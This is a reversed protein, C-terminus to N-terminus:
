CGIPKKGEPLEEASVDEYVGMMELDGLEKETVKKWEEADTQREAEWYTAPLISMDYGEAQPNRRVNSRISLLTAEGLSDVDQQLYDDADLSAAMALTEEGEFEGSKCLEIFLNDDEDSGGGTEDSEGVNSGLGGASGTGVGGRRAATERVKVLHDREAEIKQEFIRGKETLKRTWSSEQSHTWVPHPMSPPVVLHRGLAPTIPLDPPPPPPLCPPTVLHELHNSDDMDLNSPNPPLEPAEPVISPRHDLFPLFSYDNLVTPLSHLSDYPINEDFIVNGSTFFHHTAISRVRYGRQGPPYGM